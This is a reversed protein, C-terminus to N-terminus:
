THHALVTAAARALDPLPASTGILLARSPHIGAALAAEIDRPADGILWSRALDISHDSAAQLIMGPAPKRCPHERTFEPVVGKPHFPCSYVAHVDVGAEARLLERMRANCAEVDALTGHGRAVGGQNTIVILLFGADSLERCAHAAGPLLRVFAPDLLDGPNPLPLEANAILTDDRDLFVAPRM